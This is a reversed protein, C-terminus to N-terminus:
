PVGKSVGHGYKSSYSTYILYQKPYMKYFRKKSLTTHRTQLNILKQVNWERYRLLSLLPTVVVVSFFLSHIFSNSLKIGNM